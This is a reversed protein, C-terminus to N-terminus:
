GTAIGDLHREVRWSNAFYSVVPMFLTENDRSHQEPTHKKERRQQEMSERAMHKRMVEFPKRCSKVQVGSMM